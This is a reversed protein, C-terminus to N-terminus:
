AHSAPNYATGTFARHTADPERVADAHAELAARLLLELCQRSTLKKDERHTEVLECRQSDWRRSIKTVLGDGRYEVLADNWRVVDGPHIGRMIRAGTVDTRLRYGPSSMILRDILMLMQMERVPTVRLVGDTHIIDTALNIKDM